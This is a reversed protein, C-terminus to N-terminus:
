AESLPKGSAVVSAPDVEDTFKVIRWVGDDDQQFVFWVDPLLLGADEMLVAVTGDSLYQPERTADPQLGVFVNIGYFLMGQAIQTLVGAVCGSQGGDKNSESVLECFDGINGDRLSKSAAAASRSPTSKPEYLFAGSVVGGSIAASVVCACAVM